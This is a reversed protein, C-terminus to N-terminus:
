KESGKAPCSEEFNRQWREGLTWLWGNTDMVCRQGTERVVVPYHRGVAFEAWPPMGDTSICLVTAASM